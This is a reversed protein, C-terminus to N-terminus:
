NDITMKFKYFMSKVEDYSLGFNEFVKHKGKFFDSAINYKIAEEPTIYIDKHAGKGIVKKKLGIKKIFENEFITKLVKYQKDLNEVIDKSGIPQPHNVLFDHMIFFSNSTVFRNSEKASLFIYVGASAIISNAVFIVDREFGKILNIVRMAQMVDGGFTSFQVIIPIKNLGIGFEDGKVVEFKSLEHSVFYISDVFENVSFEDIDASFNIEVFNDYIVSQPRQNESGCNLIKKHLVKM